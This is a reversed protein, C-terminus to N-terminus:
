WTLQSQTVFGSQEERRRPEWSSPLIALAASVGNEKEKGSM